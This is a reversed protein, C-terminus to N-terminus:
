RMVEGARHRMRLSTCRLAHLALYDRDMVVDKKSALAQICGRLRESSSTHLKQMNQRANRCRIQRALNWEGPVWAPPSKRQLQSLM